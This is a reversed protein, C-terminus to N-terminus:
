IFIETGKTFVRVTKLCVKNPRNKFGLSTLVLSYLLVNLVEIIIYGKFLLTFVHIEDQDM